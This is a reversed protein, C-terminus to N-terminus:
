FTLKLNCGFSRTRPVGFAELGQANGNTYSSEPDFLDTHKMLIALNRGVFSISASEFNVFTIKDVPLKYSLVVQRLKIFSGNYTFIDTYRKHNDYYTDLEEVPVVRQYPNGELDVGSLELGNERGPLTGKTLGFRHSYQALNSYIKNGFKGDILISLSFDKYQFDNSFGMTLPPVGLGLETIESREEYGSNANFVTQGQANKKM